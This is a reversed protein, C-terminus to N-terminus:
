NEQKNNFLATMRLEKAEDNSPLEYRRFYNLVQERYFPKGQITRYGERNLIDAIENPSHGILRLQYLREKLSLNAPM